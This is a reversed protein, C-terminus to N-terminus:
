RKRKKIKPEIGIFKNKRQILEILQLMSEEFYKSKKPLYIWKEIVPHIVTGPILKLVTAHDDRVCPILCGDWVDIKFKKGRFSKDGPHDCLFAVMKGHVYISLGGFFKKFYFTDEDSLEEFFHGTSFSDLNYKKPM